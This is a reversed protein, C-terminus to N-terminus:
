RHIPQRCGSAFILVTLSPLPDPAPPAFLTGAQLDVQGGEGVGPGRCGTVQGPARGLGHQGMDRDHVSLSSGASLFPTAVGGVGVGMELSDTFSAVGEHGSADQRASTGPRTKDVTAM